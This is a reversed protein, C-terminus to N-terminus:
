NKLLRAYAIPLGQQMFIREFQTIFNGASLETKHLDPTHEELKYPGREFRTMAWAFYSQSDTKFFVRSGPRQMEHLRVLFEDQILRHKFNRSKEWPDPFFIYVDNIEGPAFMEPLLYANYRSTRANVCGARRARRISQILPKYRLEVGLICREPAAMARHAFHLGNGTGIELDLPTEAPVAFADERWRGRFSPTREEDYSWPSFEGRLALIYANPV